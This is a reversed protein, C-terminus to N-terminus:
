PQEHTSPSTGTQEQGTNRRLICKVLNKIRRLGRNQELYEVRSKLELNEHHLQTAVQGIFNITDDIMYPNDKQWKLDPLDDCSFLPKGDGIYEAARDYSEHFGALLNRIEVASMMNCHYRKRSFQATNKLPYLLYKRDEEPLLPDENLIRKVEITNGYLGTNVEGEDYIFEPDPRIGVASLFDHIVSGEKWHSRDFRRVILNRRGVIAALSDLTNGYDIRHTQFMMFHRYFVPWSNTSAVRNKVKQSWVSNMYEDPRRLYVVIKVTFHYKQAQEMLYPLLEKRYSQLASWLNEESLIVNDYQAFCERLQRMGEELLVAEARHDASGDQKTLREVMYHANRRSNATEFRHITPPYVYSQRALVEGNGSLFSQIASTGTKATGIHLYLTKM